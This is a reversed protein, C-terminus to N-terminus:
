KYMQNSKLGNNTYQIYAKLEQLLDKDVSSEQLKLYSEDLFYQSATSGNFRILDRGKIFSYSDNIMNIVRGENKSFVSSGYLLKKEPNLNLFDLISPYIDIHSVLDRKTLVSLDVRPHYFLIPVRYRGLESNFEKSYLKQTHDATIIFLTNDFWKEGRAKKFFNELSYDLYGISEHIALKGKPFINRFNQPLSYPQHSSLTFFTSFFPETYSDLKKKFYSLYYHDYIGWYGDYHDQNPYDEMGHYSSFGITKCYSDFDMTGTKGGHFFSTTYGNKRLDDPLAYFKNTQYQSQYLPKGVISPFGALISPLVEISRRGNAFAKNFYLSKKSIQKLFPAYGDDMYEQSLSELILVVVNSRNESLNSNSKFSRKKLILDLAEKDTEFYREKEVGKKGISRVLTYAANLSLNGLEHRSFVFASKPSLSRLQIGGRIGIATLILILSSFLISKFCSIKESFELVKKKTPYLFILVLFNILILVSFYWYNKIIQPIQSQLDGGIDFIDISIKKGLFSFFELDVVPAILFVTSFIVFTFKLFQEYRYSRYPILSFFIFFINIVLATAVDFRLGYFFAKCIDFSKIGIFYKYNYIAFVLRYFTLFFLTFSVRKLLIQYDKIQM